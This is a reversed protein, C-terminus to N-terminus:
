HLKALLKKSEEYNKADVCVFNRGEPLGELYIKIVKSAVIEAYIFRNTKIVTDKIQITMM